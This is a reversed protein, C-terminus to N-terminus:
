PIRNETKVWNILEGNMNKCPAGGGGFFFSWKDFELQDPPTLWLKKQPDHDGRRNQM